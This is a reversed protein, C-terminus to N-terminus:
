SCMKWEFIFLSFLVPCLLVNLIAVPVACTSKQMTKGEQVTKVQKEWAGELHVLLMVMM